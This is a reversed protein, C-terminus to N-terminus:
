RRLKGGVSQIIARVEATMDPAAGDASPAMKASAEFRDGSYHVTAEVQGPFRSRDFRAELAARIRSEQDSKEGTFEVQIGVIVENWWSRLTWCPGAAM